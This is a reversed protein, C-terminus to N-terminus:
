KNGRWADLQKQLEALIKDIGAAKEKAIYDDYTTAPDLVGLEMANGINQKLSARQAWETKIVSLDPFFGTTPLIKDNVYTAKM